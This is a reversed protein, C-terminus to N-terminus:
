GDSNWLVWDDGLVRTRCDLHAHVNRDVGSTVEDPCDVIRSESAVIGVRKEQQSLGAICIVYHVQLAINKVHSGISCDPHHNRIM